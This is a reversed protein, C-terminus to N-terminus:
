FAFCNFLQKVLKKNLAELFTHKYKKTTTTRDIDVNHKKLLKQWTIKLILGKAVYYYRQVDLGIENRNTVNSHPYNIGKPPPIHVKWFAQKALLAKVDKKTVYM